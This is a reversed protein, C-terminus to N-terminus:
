PQSGGVWDNQAPVSAVEVDAFVLRLTYATTELIAEYMPLGLAESWRAAKASQDVLTIDSTAVANTVASDDERIAEPRAAYAVEVCHTFILTTTALQVPQGGEPSAGDIELVVEYHRAGAAFGHGTVLQGAVGVQDLTERLPM